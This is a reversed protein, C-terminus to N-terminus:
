QAPVLQRAKTFDVVVSNWAKINNIKPVDRIVSEGGYTPSKAKIAKIINEPSYEPMDYAQLENLNAKYLAAALQRAIFGAVAPTAMSTGSLRALPKLTSNACRKETMHSTFNSGFSMGLMLMRNDAGIRADILARGNLNPKMWGIKVYFDDWVRQKNDDSRDVDPFGISLSGYESKIEQSVGSCSTQKVTSLIAEGYSLVFPVDTIPLNMFSSLEDQPNLSGVCLINKMNNNASKPGQPNQAEYKKLWPSSIDCPLASRSKGDIWQGDNGSAIVFLTHPAYAKVATGIATKFYEFTIFTMLQNLIEDRTQRAAPAVNKSFGTGLSMNAVKIKQSGVYQIAKIIETVFYFDLYNKKFSRDLHQRLLGQIAVSSAAGGLLPKLYDSVAALVTPNQLWTAFSAEFDKRIKAGMVKSYVSSATVVRVPVISVKRSQKAIIGAVHTGHVEEANDGAYYPHKRVKRYAIIKPDMLKYTLKGDCFLNRKDQVTFTQAYIRRLKAINKLAMQSKHFKESDQAMKSALNYHVALIDFRRNVERDLIAMKQADNMSSNRIQDWVQDEFDECLFDSLEAVPHDSGFRYKLNFWSKALLSLADKDANDRHRYYNVLSAYAKKFNSQQDFEQFVKNLLTWFADAHEISNWREVMTGASEFPSLTWPMQIVKRLLAATIGKQEDVKSQYNLLAGLRQSQKYYNEDFFNKLIHVANFLTFSDANIKNFLSQALVPSAKLAPLLKAMFQNNMQFVLKIPDDVPGAIRGDVTIERAGFAYLAPNVLNPHAWRDDGMVDYGAGVIRGQNVDFRIQNILEPHLYDVGNDIVAVSVQGRLTNLASLNAPNVNPKPNAFGELVAPLQQRDAFTEWVKQNPVLCAGLFLLSAVSVMSFFRFSKM